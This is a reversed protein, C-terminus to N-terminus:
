RHSGSDTIKQLDHLTNLASLLLEIEPTSGSKSLAEMRDVITIQADKIRQPLMNLDLELIAAEYLTLWHTNAEM